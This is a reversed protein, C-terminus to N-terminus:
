RTSPSAPLRAPSFRQFCVTARSYTSKLSLSLSLGGDRLRTLQYRDVSLELGKVMLRSESGSASRSLTWRSPGIWCSTKTSTAVRFSRSSGTMNYRVRRTAYPSQTTPRGPNPGPVLLFHGQSCRGWDVAGVYRSAVYQFVMWRLGDMSKLLTSNGFLDTVESGGSVLLVLVLLWLPM